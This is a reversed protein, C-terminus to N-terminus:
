KSGRLHATQLLSFDAGSLVAKAKKLADVEGARADKRVQFNSVLWDCELHLSKLTDATAMAEKMTATKEEGLKLSREELDAKSSEKDALTKSDLTRKEASDSMMSEYESQADAEEVKAEQMEKELDAKLMNLMAVVGGHEEGKKKYAGWTEPPPPPAVSAAGHQQIQVLMPPETPAAESGMNVAIRQDASLEQKPPAVYLKPTYFKALRNAAMSLLQEAATDAAMLEKFAVNEAKRNETAEAVSKDLAKIGDVLAAIEDTLTEIMGKTDELAAGLDDVKRELSKQKDETADLESECYVKKEDDAKQEEALIAVMEDIMGIVKDFTGGSKGQLALAIFDLRPEPIRRKTRAAHLVAIARRKLNQASDRTQLFSASPLTKKFLDLADDDNLIKITDAIALLEDARTKTREAWEAEKTSCGKALEALFKKDEALAKATDDIDEKMETIELGVQAVRELKSEIAATNAELEKTKAAMLDAFTKIAEEETATVEALTKEMTDKLQKLIGVIEGSAPVYGQGQSLFASLMERDPSSMEADLTIRRLVATAAANQLFSGAMGGEIAATAKGLAAINTKLDSSEKAFAAAEKERLAKATAMTKKADAVNAKHQKIDKELQVKTAEAKELASSVQPLKSEAADISQTLDNTGTKCYCMFEEFLKKEKEGEAEVSSQMKQLLKVVRRIPNEAHATDQLSAMSGVTLVLFMVSTCRGLVM